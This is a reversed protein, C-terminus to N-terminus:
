KWAPPTVNPVKRVWVQGNREFWTLTPANCRLFADIAIKPAYFDQQFPAWNYDDLVITGQEKLMPWALAVDQLVDTATHSGDIYILDFEAQEARLQVLREASTGKLVRLKDHNKALAVNSLFRGELGDLHIDPTAHEPSGVFTDVCTLRSGEHDMLHDLIWTTSSGEFSGVELIRMQTGVFPQTLEQWDLRVTEFWPYRFNYKSRDDREAAAAPDALSFLARGAYAYAASDAAPQHFVVAPPTPADM